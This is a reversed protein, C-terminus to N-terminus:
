RTSGPLGETIRGSLSKLFTAFQTKEQASLPFPRVRRDLNMNRVGGKAYFDVVDELTALSGDHMYPATLAIDRLTPTKFAGRDRPDHSVAFRGEDSAGGRIFGAGTNHFRDDTLNPGGHCTICQGRGRFLEFGTREDATLMEVQGARFWDFRSERSRITRIYSALAAAIDAAKMGARQEVEASTLGMENPNTMPQLVQEELTAARGDWFFSRGAGANVLSPTNRSGALGHVGHAVNRGDTFARAPDHCTACSTSRDASLAKDFFLRKGVAIKEPTIPNDPPTNLDGLGDPGGGRGQGQPPAGPPPPPPSGQRQAVVTISAALILAAAGVSTRRITPVLAQRITM